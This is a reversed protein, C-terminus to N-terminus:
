YIVCKFIPQKLLSGDSIVKVVFGAIGPNEQKLRKVYSWFCKPNNKIAESLHGSIYEKASKLNNHMLKWTASFM